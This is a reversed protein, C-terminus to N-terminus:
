EFFKAAGSIAALTEGADIRKKVDIEAHQANLARQRYEQLTVEDAVLIGDGDAIILNGPHITVGDISIPVNIAGEIGLIRTTLPSVKRAYIPVGIERLAKIDTVCGDIVAGAIKKARAMYSVMEGWCARDYDGSMDICVVDGEQVIDFVKHVASSDMHPIRVTVANGIFQCQEM